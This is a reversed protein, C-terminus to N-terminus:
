TSEEIARPVNAPCLLVDNGALLAKLELTGIAFYKSAGQMDLADTFSLGKFGLDKKLLGNIAKPSLSIPLNSTTDLAPMFVHATMISM